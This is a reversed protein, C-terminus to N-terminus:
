HLPTSDDPRTAGVVERGLSTPRAAPLAPNCLTLEHVATELLGLRALRAMSVTDGLKLLWRLLAEADPARTKEHALVARVWLLLDDFEEDPMEDSDCCDFRRALEALEADSLQVLFGGLRALEGLQRAYSDFASSFRIMHPLRDTVARVPFTM